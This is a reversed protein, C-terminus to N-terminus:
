KVDAYILKITIVDLPITLASAAPDQKIENEKQTINQSGSASVVFPIFQFFYMEETAYHRWIDNCIQTM